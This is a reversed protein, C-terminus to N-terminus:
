GRLVRMPDVTAATRAAGLAAVISIAMGAVLGVGRLWLPTEVWSVLYTRALAVMPDLLLLGAGSGLAGIILAQTAVFRRISSAPAGLAKLTAFEALSEVTSAYMTQLVIVLGVVCGLLAAVVIAGGAGTQVLWFWASRSAFQDTSLVDADPIRQRLMALQADSVPPADVFVVGYSVADADIGLVDRVHTVDGFVYPSGLFSGFGDTVRVVDTRRGAIEIAVPVRDLGLLDRNSADIVVGERDLVASDDRVPLPLPPPFRRDLGVMVVGRHEGDGRVFSSMGAVIPLVTDVGEVQRALDLYQRPIAAPFDFSPVGRGVIWADGGATAIVRGAARVFGILLSGQFVMLFVAVAVGAVTM